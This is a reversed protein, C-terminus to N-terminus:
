SLFTLQSICAMATWLLREVDDEWYIKKGATSHPSSQRVAGLLKWFFIGDPISFDAETGKDSTLVLNKIAMRKIRQTDPEAYKWTKYEETMRPLTINKELSTWYIIRRQDTPNMEDFNELTCKPVRVREKKQGIGGMGMGGMTAREKEAEQEAEKKAEYEKLKTEEGAKQIQAESLGGTSEELAGEYEALKDSIKTDDPSIAKARRLDSIAEAMKKQEVYAQGRRYLAKVNDAQGFLGLVLSLEVPLFPGMWRDSLCGLFLRCVVTTPQFEYTM